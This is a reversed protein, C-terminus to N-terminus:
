FCGHGPPAPCSVTLPPLTPCPVALQQHLVSKCQVVLPDRSAPSGHASRGPEMLPCAEAGFAWRRTM